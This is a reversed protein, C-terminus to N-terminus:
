EKGRKSFSSEHLYFYGLMPKTLPLDSTSITTNFSSPGTIGVSSTVPANNSLEKKYPDYYVHGNGDNKNQVFQYVCKDRLSGMLSMSPNINPIYLSSCYDGDGVKIYVDKLILYIDEGDEDQFVPKSPDNIDGVWNWSDDTMYLLHALLKNLEQDETTKVKVPNNETDYTIFESGLKGIPNIIFNGMLHVPWTNNNVKDVARFSMFECFLKFAKNQLGWSHFKYEPVVKGTRPEIGSYYRKKQENFWANFDYVDGVKEKMGPWFLNKRSTKPLTCPLQLKVPPRAKTVLHTYFEDPSIDFEYNNWYVDGYKDCTVNSALKSVSNGNPLTEWEEPNSTITINEM